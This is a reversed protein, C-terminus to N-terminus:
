EHYHIAGIGLGLAAEHIVEGTTPHAFITEIVDKEQINNKIILTLSAILTSADPGILSAGIIKGEDIDKILKIFGKEEGMTLAKGNASFPFKSVKINLGKEKAADEGMGVCAIEPTTFVIDPVFNYDMKRNKNLINDVAVIGQHSAVHALQYKNTVDGIAYIGEVNTKLYDDVKIGSGGENLEVKTKDLNLGDINPERGPAILVNESVLYKEEGDKEFVVLAEGNETKEVRKVSSSTFVNIGKEKAIATIEESIDSDMTKLIRKGHSVLNVKVGFNSYIFAFEMGIVGGGLVTISKPKKTYSLATTSNLVFPLDYGKINRNIMKSGTAIIINKANITYEDKGKKVVITKEDKFSAEGKILRVHNKKLLYDIGSVLNNIIGEKRKVVKKMDVEPTDCLIGFEEANLTNHFIESSKIFTKTPICGINLCTGGLNEREILVTNLGNKAAYISAVYGGPGAGIIIMDCNVTEKKGKLLSGFYDMVPKQSNNKNNKEEGSVIFLVQGVLVEQGEEVKIEEIKYSAKAKFPSNGKQSEIQMLVDNTNIVDGVKVNIKGIRATKKNGLLSELKIEM